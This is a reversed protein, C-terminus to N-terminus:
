GAAKYGVRFGGWHRGGVHIPVSLDHMIEGTDRKYTQLLLKRTHSGCRAGTRDNFIRKTRNNALDTEQHGTLPRCFRNNHTAVYGNPDTCIAYIAERHQELIAEQIAPLVRDAFQDYATSYKPPNTGPIPRYSRDFLASEEIQGTRIAAEFADRVRDAGQRAAQYIRNHLTDLELEALNEFMGEGLDSLSMSQESIQKMEMEMTLLQSRMQELSRAIEDVEAHNRGAGEAISRIQEELVHSHRLVGELQRGVLDISDVGSGVEGILGDMTAVAAVTGAHIEGVMAGIQETAQATREALKRVEDAVVSFGRGAEGARVAEIAANLALLNTQGAIGSIVETIAQIQQTKAELRHIHQASERARESMRRMEAMVRALAEQGSASDNRARLASEAALAARSAVDHSTNAINVSSSSIGKSQGAVLEVNRNLRDVKFSTEALSITNREIVLFVEGLTEVLGHSAQGIWALLPGLLGDGSPRPGSAGAVGDLLGDLPKMVVQYLFALMVLITTAVLVFHFLWGPLRTELLLHELGGLLYSGLVAVLFLFLIKRQLGQRLAAVDPSRMM